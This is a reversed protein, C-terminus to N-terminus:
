RLTRWPSLIIGADLALMPEWRSLDFDSAEYDPDSAVPQYNSYDIYEARVRGRLYVGLWRWIRVRLALDGGVLPNWATQDTFANGLNLSATTSVGDTWLTYGLSPALGWSLLTIRKGKVYPSIWWLDFRGGLDLRHIGKSWLAYRVAGDLMLIRGPNPDGNNLADWMPPDGAGGGLFDIAAGAFDILLFPLFLDAEVHVREFELSTGIRPYLMDHMSDSKLSRFYDFGVALGRWEPHYGSRASAVSATQSVLALFLGALLVVRGVSKFRSSSSDAALPAM